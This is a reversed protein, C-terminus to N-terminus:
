GNLCRVCIDGSDKTLTGTSNTVTYSYTFVSGAYTLSFDTIKNKSYIGTTVLTQPTSESTRQYTVYGDTLSICGGEIGYKYYSVTTAIGNSDKSSVTYTELNDLATVKGEDTVVNESTKLVDEIATNLTSMLLQSESEFMLKHYCNIGMNIGVTICALVLVLIIITVLLEMLSLGGRSRLKKIM